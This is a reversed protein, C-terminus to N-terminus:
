EKAKAITGTEELRVWSEGLPKLLIFRKTEKLDESYALVDIQLSSPGFRLYEREFEDHWEPDLMHEGVGLAEHGIDFDISEGPALTLYVNLKFGPNQVFKVVPDPRLNAGRDLLWIQMTLDELAGGLDRFKVPESGANKVQLRLNPFEGLPTMIIKFGLQHADAPVSDPNCGVMLILILFGLVKM